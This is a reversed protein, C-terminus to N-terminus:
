RQKAATSPQPTSALAPGCEAEDPVISPAMSILHPGNADHVVEETETARRVAELRLFYIEALM